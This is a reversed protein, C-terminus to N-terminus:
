SCGLSNGCNLCKYCSGNRVTMHGCVDCLPADGMMDGLAANMSATGADVAARATATGNSVNAGAMAAGGAAAAPAGGGGGPATVPGETFKVAQAVADVDQEAAVDFLEPQDGAEAAIGKKPGPIEGDRVPPVQALEDRHLYEVGLARFVYDVISNSMKINPHGEVMGRPEFTQFTFTDVFEQLPVGYQLGKSVAIAFCSLIGKLTAGEKALDIFVEGLTGDEYEGTRLYVKHGGVRAEQTYGGRRAPLVFRPPSMGLAYAQTPSVGAPIQGWAIKKEM